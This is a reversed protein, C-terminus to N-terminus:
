ILPAWRRRCLEGCRASCRLSSSTVGPRYSRPWCEREIVKNLIFGFNPCIVCLIRAPYGIMSAYSESGEDATILLFPPPSSHFLAATLKNHWDARKNCNRIVSWVARTGEKEWVNERGAGIKHGVTSGIWRKFSLPQLMYCTFAAKTRNFPIPQGERNSRWPLYLQFVPCSVNKQCFICDRAAPVHGQSAFLFNQTSFIEPNM